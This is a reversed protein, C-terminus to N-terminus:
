ARRNKSRRLAEAGLMGVGFLLLTAPEPVPNTDNGGGLGGTNSLVQEFQVDAGDVLIATVFDGLLYDSEFYFTDSLSWGPPAGMVPNFLGPNPFEVKLNTRGSYDEISLLAIPITGPIGGTGTHDVLPELDNTVPLYLKQIFDAYGPATFNINELQYTYRFLRDGGVIDEQLLYLSAGVGGGPNIYDFTDYTGPAFSPLAFSVGTLLFLSLLAVGLIKITKKM